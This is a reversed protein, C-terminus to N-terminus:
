LNVRKYYVFLIISSVIGLLFFLYEDFFGQNYIISLCFLVLLSQKLSQVYLFELGVFYKKIKELITISKIMLLCYLIFGIIGTQYLLLYMANTTMPLTTKANAVNLQIEMTQPLTSQMFHKILIWGTNGFGVGFIPHKLFLLFQNM